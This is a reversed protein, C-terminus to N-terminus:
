GLPVEAEDAQRLTLAPGARRARDVHAGVGVVDGGHLLQKRRGGVGLRGVLDVDALRGVHEGGAGGRGRANSLRNRPRPITASITPATPTALMMIMETSSRRDSIPRRRASPAVLLWIRVCNRPSDIRSAAMPPMTPTSAPAVAVATYAPEFPQAMTIGASAHDPPMAEAM